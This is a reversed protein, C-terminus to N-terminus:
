GIWETEWAEKRWVLTPYGQTAMLFQATQGHQTTLCVVGWFLDTQQWLVLICDPTGRLAAERGQTLKAILYCVDRFIYRPDEENRYVSSAFSLAVYLAITEFAM